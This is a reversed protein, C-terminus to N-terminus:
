KSEELLAVVAKMEALTFAGDDFGPEYKSAIKKDLDVNIRTETGSLRFVIYDTFELVREYGLEELTKMVTGM